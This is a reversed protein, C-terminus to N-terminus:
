LVENYYCLVLVLVMGFCVLFGGHVAVAAFFRWMLSAMLSVTSFFFFDTDTLFGFDGGEERLGLGWLDWLIGFLWCIFVQSTWDCEWRMSRIGVGIGFTRLFELIPFFFPFFVLSSVRCELFCLDPPTLGTLSPSFTIMLSTLIIRSVLGFWDRPLLLLYTWLM